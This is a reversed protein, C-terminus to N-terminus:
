IYTSDFWCDEMEWLKATVHIADSESTHGWFSLKWDPQLIDEAYVRSAIRGRGGLAFIEFLSHDFLIELKLASSRLGGDPLLM